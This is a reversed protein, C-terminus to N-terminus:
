KRILLKNYLRRLLGEKKERRCVGRMPPLVPQAPKSILSYIGYRVGDKYVMTTKIIYGRNRLDNIRSPLRICRFLDLAQLQTLTKGSELYRAIMQNQTETRM